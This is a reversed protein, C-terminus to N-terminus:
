GCSVDFGVRGDDRKLGKFFVTCADAEIASGVSLRAKKGNLVVDGATPWARVLGLVHRDDGVSVSEGPKLWFDAGGAFGKEELSQAKLSALQDGLFALELNSKQRLEDQRQILEALQSLERSLEPDDTAARLHDLRSNVDDFNSQQEALLADVTPGLLGTSEIGVQVAIGVVAGVVMGGLALAGSRLLKRDLMAKGLLGMM